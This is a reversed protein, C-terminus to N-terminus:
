KFQKVFQEGSDDTYRVYVPSRSKQSKIFKNIKSDEPFDLNNWSNKVNKIVTEKDVDFVPINNITDDPEILNEENSM